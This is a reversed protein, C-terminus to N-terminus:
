LGTLGPMFFSFYWQALDKGFFVFAFAGAALFPGFPIASKMNSKKIAISSVGYVSGALSGVIIVFPVAQWGLVAGVWAMLKIDGGGMGEEGKLLYYFYAVAWLFGGGLLLGSLADVISRDSAVLSGLVGLGIGPLTFWDPLIMHDLDIVSAAFLMFLFVVIELGKFSMGYKWFTAVFILGVALEVLPYRMSILARCNRCRGRLLFWSLLPINDYWSIARQCSPCSSGPFVISRGQPIRYILVNAFSGFILGFAFVIGYQFVLPVVEMESM